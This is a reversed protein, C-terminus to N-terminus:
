EEEFSFVRAPKEMVLTDLTSKLQTFGDRLSARLDESTRVTQPDVDALLERAKAVVETLAGDDSLNRADFTDLFERLNTILTKRFVKPKGDKSTGSLREVLHNVLETMNVRLLTRVEALTEQWLTEAKHQEEQFLTHSIQKLQGPVSFAIFQWQMSFQAALSEQSHYDTANFASRLRQQDREILDPYAALFVGVLQGRQAAFACLTTQVEEIFDIPLLYVGSKFLSPLGRTYLYRRVEGDLSTIAKMQPSDLLRKHASILRKDADVEVLSTPLRRYEGPKRLVVSLCVAREFLATAPPSPSATETLTTTPADLTATM